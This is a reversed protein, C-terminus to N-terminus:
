NAENISEFIDRVPVNFGPLLDGGTLTDQLILLHRDTATLVEILRKHAYVLWVMKAGHQLYYAGKDAMFKENQGPSQIEVILEPMYNLPADADLTRGAKLAVAIDPIRDNQDDDPLKIRIESFVWGIPNQRMYFYLLSGLAIAILAHLQKPMKEVIEGYIRELLREEYDPEAILTEYEALTFLKPPDSIVM